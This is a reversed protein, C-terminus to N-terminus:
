GASGFLAKQTGYKHFFASYLQKLEFESETYKYLMMICSSFNEKEQTKQSLIKFINKLKKFTKM